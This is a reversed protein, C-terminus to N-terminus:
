GSVATELRDLFHRWGARHRDARTAPLGRHVIEVRTGDGDRVLDVQLTSAGTPLDDSGPFGWTVVIRHPPDLEVFRGRVAAGEIDVAFVGGPTPDLSAYQGMWTTMAEARTFYDYVTEPPADIHVSATVADGAM